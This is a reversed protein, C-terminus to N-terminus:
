IEPEKMIAFKPLLMDEGAHYGYLTELDAEIAHM